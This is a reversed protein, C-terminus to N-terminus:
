AGSPVADEAAAPDVPASSHRLAWGSRDVSYGDPGFVPPRHQWDEGLVERDGQRTVTEFRAELAARAPAEPLIAVRRTDNWTMTCALRAVGTEPWVEADDPAAQTAGFIAFVSPDSLNRESLRDRTILGYRSCAVIGGSTTEGPVHVRRLAGDGVV